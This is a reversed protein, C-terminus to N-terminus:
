VRAQGEVYDPDSPGGLGDIVIANRWAAEPYGAAFAVSPTLALPSAALLKLATRRDM